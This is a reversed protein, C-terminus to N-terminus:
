NVPKGLFQITLSSEPSLPLFFTENKLHPNAKQLWAPGQSAMGSPVEGGGWEAQSLLFFFYMCHKQIM